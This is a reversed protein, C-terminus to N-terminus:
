RGKSACRLGDIIEHLKARVLPTQEVVTGTVIINAGAEAARKAEAGSRIGGGVILPIDVTGKVKSIATPPIPESAGSGAELYVFRMGLYQAALAHTAAFEPRDYPIPHAYGVLGAAGGAGMLIYGLPIAELGYKKVLPAGLTQAGIIFYPNISNLLSMFLVADAYRSIGSVNGPFLIVPIKVSRKIAKITLDVSHPHSITSGGVLIAASGAREGERCINASTKPNFKEPDVLTFHLTGEERIRKMLYEEVPGM